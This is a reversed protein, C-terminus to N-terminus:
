LTARLNKQISHLREEHHGSFNLVTSYIRSYFTAFHDQATMNHLTLSAMHYSNLVPLNKQRTKKGPLSNIFFQINVLIHANYLPTPRINAALITHWALKSKNESFYGNGDTVSNLAGSNIAQPSTQLGTVTLM